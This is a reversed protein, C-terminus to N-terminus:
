RAFRRRAGLGLLGLGLLFATGPEPVPTEPLYLSYLMVSGFGGGPPDGISSTSAICPGALEVCSTNNFSTTTMTLVLEKTEDAGFVGLDLMPLFTDQWGLALSNESVAGELGNLFDLNVQSTTGDSFVGASFSFLSSGDLSIDIEFSASADFDSISTGNGIGFLGLGGALVQSQFTGTVGAPGTNTISQTMVTTATASHLGVGSVVQGFRLETPTYDALGQAGALGRVAGNQDQITTLENAMDGVTDVTYSGSGSFEDGATLSANYELTSVVGAQAASGLLLLILFSIQNRLQRM